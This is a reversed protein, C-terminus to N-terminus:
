QNEVFVFRDELKKVQNIAKKVLVSVINKYLKKNKNIDDPYFMNLWYKSCTIQEDRRTHYEDAFYNEKEIYTLMEGIIKLRPNSIMKNIQIM